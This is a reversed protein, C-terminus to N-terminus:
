LQKSMKAYITKFGFKRGWGPRGYIRMETCGKIKAWAEVVPQLDAWENMKSGGLALYLCFKVGTKDHTQLTTVLAAEIESGQWVWLQMATSQLGRYIDDLTYSSGRDLARKIHPKVHPWVDQIQGSSYCVLSSM